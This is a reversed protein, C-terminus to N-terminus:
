SSILTFERRRLKKWAQSQIFSDMGAFCTAYTKLLVLLITKDMVHRKLVILLNDTLFYM